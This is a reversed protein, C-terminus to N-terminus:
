VEDVLRGIGIRVRREEERGLVEVGFDAGAGAGAGFSVVLRPGAVSYPYNLYLMKESGGRVGEFVVFILRGM